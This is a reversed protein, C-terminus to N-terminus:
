NTRAWLGGPKHMNGEPGVTDFPSLPKVHGDFMLFNVQNIHPIISYMIYDEPASVGCCSANSLYNNSRHYDAVAILRSPSKVSTSRVSWTGSAIGWITDPADAPSSGYGSYKGQNVAYSRVGFSLKRDDSPCRYPSEYSPPLKDKVLNAYSLADRGDYGSLLDDWSTQGGEMSILYPVRHANDASYSQMSMGIQRLQSVCLSQRASNIASTLAPMLMSALIGIIAIVVLMEILTFRSRAM